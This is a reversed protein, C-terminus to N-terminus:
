DVNCLQDDHRNAHYATLMALAYSGSKSGSMGKDKRRLGVGQDVGKERRGSGITKGAQQRRAYDVIEHAHHTLYTILKRHMTANRVPVTSLVEM